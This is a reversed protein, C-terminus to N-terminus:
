AVQDNWGEMSRAAAQQTHRAGGDAQGATGESVIRPQRGPVACGWGFGM